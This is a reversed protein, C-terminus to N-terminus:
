ITICIHLGKNPSSTIDITGKLIRTREKISFMGTKEINIHNKLDIGIGDDDYLIIIHSDDNFISIEVEEAKSHKTANNLLEQIIRYLHVEYENTLRKISYDYDFYILFNCNLRTYDILHQLAQGLGEEKLFPPRLENCTERVLHAMDSLTDKFGIMEEHIPMTKKSQVIISDVLRILQLLGQLISDHLDMSLNVRENEAVRLVLKSYWLPMIDETIIESEYTDLKQTLEEILYHNELIISSFYSISELWAEERINIKVNNAKHEFCIIERHIESSGIIIAYGGKLKILTGSSFYSWNITEIDNFNGHSDSTIVRWINSGSIKELKVYIVRRINLVKRIQNMLYDILVSPKTEFKVKQFFSYLSIDLRNNSSFLHPNLKYDLYDKIYLVSIFVLFILMGIVLTRFTLLKNTNILSILLSSLISFPFALLAYYKIKNLIFKIDFLEVTLQLYVLVGPIIIVFIGTLEASLIYNGSLILPLAYLFIFPLFAVIFNFFLIRLIVKIREESNVKYYRILLFLLCFVIFSFFILQIARSPLNWNPMFFALLSIGMVVYFFTYLCKLYKISIFKKKSHSFYLRLFSIFFLIAGPLTLTNVIRGIIEGRASISASSYCLVVILLFYILYNYSYELNNKKNLIITLIIITIIFLLKIILHIELEPNHATYSVKESLIEGDKKQFTLSEMMELRQFHILSIHSQPEIGKGELLQDGIEISTDNAWGNEYISNVYYRNDHISIEIGILPYKITLYTFYSILLISIIIFITSITKLIDKPM